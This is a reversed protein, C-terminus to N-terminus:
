AAKAFWGVFTLWLGLLVLVAGVAIIAQPYQIVYPAFTTVIDPLLLVVAGRVLTIWGLLSVVIAAPSTWVNHAAIMVAGLILVFAGTILMLPQDRVLDAILQPVAAARLAVAAGTLLLVPGITRAMLRTSVPSTM